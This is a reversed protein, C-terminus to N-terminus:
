RLIGMRLAKLVAQHKNVCGLKHMGNNIHLVATRETIGLINGVEWATKGEMTWRLSELERATLSPAQLQPESPLLLRSAAEQAHVAFLQLDAVMRTLETTNGPLSLDRDVGILFHQGQPLHLALAIGSRYGFQAQEEWVDGQGVDLYTGQDWIIPVSHHRCYQMVPDRKWNARNEYAETFDLPTNDLAIFESDGRLHDVVITASITKFGLNQAFGVMEGRLEERDQAQLVSAYGYQLM